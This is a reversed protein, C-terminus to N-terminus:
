GVWMGVVVLISALAFLAGALRVLSFEGEVIFISPRPPESPYLGLQDLQRGIKWRLQFLIPLLISGALVVVVFLWFGLPMTLVADLEETTAKVLFATSAGLLAFSMLGSLAIFEAKLRRSLFPGLVNDMKARDESSFPYGRAYPSPYFIYVDDDQEYFDELRLWRISM